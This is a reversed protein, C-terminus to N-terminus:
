FLIRKFWQATDTNYHHGFDDLVLYHWMMCFMPNQREELSIANSGTILIHRYFLRIGNRIMSRSHEHVLGQNELSDFFKTIFWAPFVRRRFALYLEENTYEGVLPNAVLSVKPLLGKDLFLRILKWTPRQSGNLWRKIPISLDSYKGLDEIDENKENWFEFLKRKDKVLAFLLDFVGELPSIDKTYDFSPMWYNFQMLAAILANGPKEDSHIDNYATMSKKFTFCISYMNTFEIFDKIPIVNNPTFREAELFPILFDCVASYDWTNMYDKEKCWNTFDNLIDIFRTLNEESIDSKQIKQLEKKRAEWNTGYM